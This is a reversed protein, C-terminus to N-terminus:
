SLTYYLDVTGTSGGDGSAAYTGPVRNLYKVGFSLLKNAEISIEVPTATASNGGTIERARGSDIDSSTLHGGIVYYYTPRLTNKSGTTAGYCCIGINGAYQPTFSYSETVANEGYRGSAGKHTEAKVTSYKYMKGSSTGGGTSSSGGSSSGSELKSVRSSLSSIRSSLSSISSNLSSISSRLSAIDTTYGSITGNLTAIAEDLIRLNDNYLDVDYYESKEPQVLNLFKTNTSM